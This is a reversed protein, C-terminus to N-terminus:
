TGNVTLPLQVNTAFNVGATDRYWTDFNAAGTFPAYTPGDPNVDNGAVYVPKFSGDPQQALEPALIGPRVGVIQGFNPHGSWEFDPHAESFDRVRITLTNLCQEGTNGGTGSSPSPRHRAWGKSIRCWAQWLAPLLRM